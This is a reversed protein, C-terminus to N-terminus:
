CGSSGTGSSGTGSSSHHGGGGTLAAELRRRLKDDSAATFRQMFREVRDRRIYFDTNRHKTSGPATPNGDHYIPVSSKNMKDLDRYYGNGTRTNITVVGCNDVTKAAVLTADITDVKFVKGNPTGRETLIGDNAKVGKLCIWNPNSYSSLAPSCDTVAADGRARGRLTAAAPSSVDGSALQGGWQGPPRMTKVFNVVGQLAQVFKPSKPLCTCYYTGTGNYKHLVMSYHCGNGPFAVLDFPSSTGDGGFMPRDSLWLYFNAIDIDLELENDLWGPRRILLRRWHKKRMKGPARTHYAQIRKFLEQDTHAQAFHTVVGDSGTLNKVNESHIVGRAIHCIRAVDATDKEENRGM